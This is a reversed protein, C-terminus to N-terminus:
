PQRNALHSFQDLGFVPYEGFRISVTIRKMSRSGRPEVSGFITVKALNGIGYILEISGCGPLIRDLQCTVRCIGKLATSIDSSFSVSPDTPTWKLNNVATSTRMMATGHSNFGHLAIGSIQM